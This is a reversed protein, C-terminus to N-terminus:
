PREGFLEPHIYRAMQELGDVLRPTPRDFINTPAIFVAQRRVAPIAPWQMWRAKVEEFVTERAMSSIVMVDPALAIVQEVSFRPYPNPGAAVNIGGALTILENIFTDEGVSVIPSVGIQVFVRPKQVARAATDAVRRIRRRMDDTIAQARSAANLLGGIAEISEMTSQLDVADVAFVPVGLKELQEVVVLPNGDKIGICLDPQLALIREVDLHVYSGVKPLNGAEPPYDSFRSVGKLLAQQGLAFIIETVSPALSIVRRPAVPVRVSRGTIDTVTRAAASDALACSVQPIEFESWSLRGTTYLAPHHGATNGPSLMALLM